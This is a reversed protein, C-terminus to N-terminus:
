NIEKESLWAIIRDAVTKWESELMMDHAMGSFIVPNTNYARATAEIESINFITDNAGGLVLIPTNIRKPKPLNLTIMDLFARYSEDQLLNFYYTLKEDSITSSFFAERTLEPTSVLPYMSLQFTVKAFPGPHRHAIRLSSAIIGTPPVSALLVAAPAENIKLYKQVVAGGMSHGIVVPPKPLGKAVQVVDTVYDSLKTWRLHERGWSTGHGRLSLAHAAYGLSAFYDLFHETWCWAGHWAGHVFLLPTSKLSVTPQRSIVELNM